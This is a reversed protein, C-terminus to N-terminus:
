LDDQPVRLTLDLHRSRHTDGLEELVEPDVGFRNEDDAVVRQHGVVLSELFRVGDLDAGDDGAPLGLSTWAMFHRRQLAGATTSMRLCLAAKQASQKRRWQRSCTRRATSCNSM